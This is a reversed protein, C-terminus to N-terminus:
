EVQTAGAPRDSAASLLVQEGKGAASEPPQARTLGHARGFLRGQKGESRVMGRRWRARYCFWGVLVVWVGWFGFGFGWFGWCACLSSVEVM